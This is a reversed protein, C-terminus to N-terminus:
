EYETAPVPFMHIWDVDQRAPQMPGISPSIDLQAGGNTTAFSTISASVVCVKVADVYWTVSTPEWDVAYNHFQTSDTTFSCSSQTGDHHVFLTVDPSGVNREAFDIEGHTWDNNAPWILPVAHYPTGSDSLPVARERVEVRGYRFAKQRSWLGGTAGSSTGTVSLYGGGETTQSACRLGLGSLGPSCGTSQGPDAGFLGWKSLDVSTGNYEDSQSADATGWGYRVSAMQSSDAREYDCMTAMFRTDPSSGLVASQVVHATTAGAPVTFTASVATWTGGADTSAPLSVSPGSQWGLYENNAGYWDVGIRATGSGDVVRDLASLIWTEGPSVSLEPMYFSDGGTGFAWDAAALDSVADRSVQGGDLSGWGSLNSALVPNSCGNDLAGTTTGTSTAAAASSNPAIASIALVAVVAVTAAVVRRSMRRRPAKVPRRDKWNM